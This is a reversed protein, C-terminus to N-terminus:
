NLYSIFISYWDMHVLRSLFGEPLFQMLSQVMGKLVGGQVEFQVELNLFAM